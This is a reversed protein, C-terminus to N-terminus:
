EGKDLTENDTNGGTEGWGFLEQAQEDSLDCLANYEYDCSKEEQTKHKKDNVRGLVMLLAFMVIGSISIAAGAKFGRTEYDFVIENDGAPVRVASLGGFVNEIETKEGNVYATFGEDYPVSFFVLSEKDLKIKADFGDPSEKFFYCSIKEKCVKEMDKKSLSMRTDEYETLIDSFREIQDETLFVAKVCLNSKQSQSLKEIDDINVYKDYVFGMPIFNSNEYIYFDNQEDIYKFGSVPEEPPETLENKEKLYYKVSMLNRLGYYQPEMRTAVNRTQDMTDEYFTMISPSVTSQFCRMTSYGWFMPWNDVNESTDIRYFRGEERPLDIEGEIAHEIFYDNYPGQAVGYWVMSACCVFSCGVTLKLLTKLSKKRDPMFYLVFVLALFVIVTVCIQIVALDPYQAVKGFVVKGNEEKPLLFLVCVIVMVTVVAPVGKKLSIETDDVALSTMLAMILVPMFFWRAYYTGNFLQFASNLFPVIACIFCITALKNAWHKKKERMFAIVGAMSFMPLYAAISAWRATEAAFLNSRAPMDPLMFMSQIIRYIRFKDSYVAMDMGYLSSNMRPNDLVALAAPLFIVASVCVGIVAEVALAFFKKFTLKFKNDTCRVVFYIITFVVTSAFFYYNVIANLAVALAFVGRRNDQVRMELALLVLPFIATVDHFHNFFVNFIQAGSFAYLVAGIAAADPTKVFRRIFAYSTLAAVGTKLCLLWPFIYLVAGSPFLTTLWFFPSGALYFAYSGVFDSGIDTGWDWGFLGNERIFDHCHQYFMLQQSNFDGYYLFYGKNYIILPLIVAAFSIFAALFVFLYREKQECVRNGKIIYM